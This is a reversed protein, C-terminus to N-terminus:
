GIILLCQIIIVNNVFKPKHTRPSATKWILPDLQLSVLGSVKKRSLDAIGNCGPVRESIFTKCGWSLSALLLHLICLNFVM